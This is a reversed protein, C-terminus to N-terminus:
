KKKQIGKILGHRTPCKKRDKMFRLARNIGKNWKTHDAFDGRALEYVKKGRKRAGVSAIQNIM